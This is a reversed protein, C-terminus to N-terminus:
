LTDITRVEFSVFLAVAAAMCGSALLLYSTIGGTFTKTRPICLDSGGSGASRIALRARSRPRPLM